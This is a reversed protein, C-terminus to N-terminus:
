APDGGYRVGAVPAPLGLAAALKGALEENGYQEWAPSLLLRAGGARRVAVRYARDGEGDKGEELEVAEVESLAFAEQEAVATGRRLVRVQGAARDFEVVSAPAQRLFHLGGSVAFLGMVVCAPGVYQPQEAMDNELGLPMAACLAGGLVFAGGLLWQLGPRHTVTVVGDHDQIRM